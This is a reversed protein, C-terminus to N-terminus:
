RALSGHLQLVKPLSILPPFPWGTARSPPFLLLFLPSIPDTCARIKAMVTRESGSPRTNIHLSSLVRNRHRDAKRRIICFFPLLSIQFFQVCGSWQREWICLTGLLLFFHDYDIIFLTKKKKKEYYCCDHSVLRKDSLVPLWKWVKGKLAASFFCFLVIASTRSAASSGESSICDQSIALLVRAGRSPKSWGAGHQLLQHLKILLSDSEVMWLVWGDRASLCKEQRFPPVVRRLKVSGLKKM